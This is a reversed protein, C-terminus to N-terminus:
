VGSALKYTWLAAVIFLFLVARGPFTFFVFDVFKNM